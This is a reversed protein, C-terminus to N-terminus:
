KLANKGGDSKEDKFKPGNLFLIKLYKKDDGAYLLSACQSLVYQDLYMVNFLNLRLKVKFKSGCMSYSESMNKVTYLESDTTYLRGVM